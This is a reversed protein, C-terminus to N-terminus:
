GSVLSQRASRDIPRSPMEVCVRRSARSTGCRLRLAFTRLALQRELARWKALLYFRKSGALEWTQLERVCGPALSRDPVTLPPDSSLKVM